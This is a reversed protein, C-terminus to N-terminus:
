EEARIRKWPHRQEHVPLLSLVADSLKMDPDMAQVLEGTNHKSSVVPKNHPSSALLSSCTNYTNCCYCCCYVVHAAAGTSGTKQEGKM